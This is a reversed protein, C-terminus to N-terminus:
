VSRVTDELEGVVQEHGQEDDVPGELESSITDTRHPCHPPCRYIEYTSIDKGPPKLSVCQQFAAKAEARRGLGNLANGKGGYLTHKRNEASRTANSTAEFCTLASTFKQLSNDFNKQELAICGHVFELEIKVFRLSEVGFNDSDTSLQQNVLTEGLELFSMAPEM